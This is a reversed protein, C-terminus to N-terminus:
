NEWVNSEYEIMTAEYNQAMLLAQNYDEYIDIIHEDQGNAYKILRGGLLMLDFAEELNRHAQNNRQNYYIASSNDRFLNQVLEKYSFTAM